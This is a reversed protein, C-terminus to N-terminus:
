SFLSPFKFSRKDVKDADKTERTGETEEGEEEKQSTNESGWFESPWRLMKSLRSKSQSQKAELKAQVEFMHVLSSYLDDLQKKKSEETRQASTNRRNSNSSMHINNQTKSANIMMASESEVQSEQSQSVTLKNNNSNKKGKKKSVGTETKRQKQEENNLRTARYFYDLKHFSKKRGSVPESDIDVASKKRTGTPVVDVDSGLIDGVNFELASARFFSDYADGSIGGGVDLAVADANDSKEEQAVRMGKKKSRKTNANARSLDKLQEVTMKGTLNQQKGTNTRGEHGSGYVLSEIDM